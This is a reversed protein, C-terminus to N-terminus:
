MWESCTKSEGAHWFSVTRLVKGTNAVRAATREENKKNIASTLNQMLNDFNLGHLHLLAAPLSCIYTFKDPTGVCLLHESCQVKSLMACRSVEAMPVMYLLLPAKAAHLLWRAAVQLRQWAWTSHM